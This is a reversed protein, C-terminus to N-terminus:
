SCLKSSYFVPRTKLSSREPFPPSHGYLPCLTCLNRLLGMYLGKGSREDKSLTVFQLCYGSHSILFSRWM